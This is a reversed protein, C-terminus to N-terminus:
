QGIQNLAETAAEGVLPDPDERLEKLVSVAAQAAPGIHGLARAACLRIEEDKSKLRETLTPVAAAAPPGIEGLIKAAVIPKRFEDLEEILAPVAIDTKGTLLWLSKAAQARAGITDQVTAEEIAPIAPQAFPGLKGLAIVADERIPQLPDKLADLLSQLGEKGIDPGIDGLATAAHRRVSPAGEKLKRRLAPVASRAEPGIAGLARETFYQTHFDESDLLPIMTPVAAKAEPGISGLASVAARQLDVNDRKLVETLAPVASKAEPGIGYLAVAAGRCVQANTSQLATILQPVAKPGTEALAMSALVWVPYRAGAEGQDEDELAQILAPIASEAKPGIQRLAWAATTRV